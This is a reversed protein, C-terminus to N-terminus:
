RVFTVNAKYTSQLIVLSNPDEGRARATVRFIVPVLRDLDSHDGVAVLEIVYQPEPIGSINLDASRVEDDGLTRMSASPSAESECEDDECLNRQCLGSVCVPTSAEQFPGFYLDLPNFENGDANGDGDLDLGDTGNRIRAEGERLASEAAQFAINQNRLNGAMREELSAMRLAMTMILTLLLLVVLGVILAFGSQRHRNGSRNFKSLNPSM